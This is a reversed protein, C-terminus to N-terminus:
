RWTKNKHYQPFTQNTIFEILKLKEENLNNIKSFYEMREKFNVPENQHNGKLLKIAYEEATKCTYHKIYCYKFKPYGMIGKGLREFNGLADCQASVNNTPQHSTGDITFLVGEYNKGRMISKHYINYVNYRLGQPFRDNLTRNDYYLLNNDDFVMWHIKIVDCKDFVPMDLYSKLSMNKDTFELFEDVDYLLFWKCRSKLSKFAYEFFDYHTLNRSNIYEIDVIGKKIYDDLVDSLNEVDDPNDDGFYFKEVGLKLYYEVYERVYLNEDKAKTLICSYYIYNNNGAEKVKKYDVSDELKFLKYKDKPAIKKHSHKKYKPLLIKYHEKNSLIKDTPIIKELIETEPIETKNIEETTKIIKLKLPKVKRHVLKNAIYFIFLIVIFLIKKFIPKNKNYYNKCYTKKRVKKFKNQLIKESNESKDIKM